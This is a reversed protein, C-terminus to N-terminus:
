FHYDNSLEYLMESNKLTTTVLKLMSKAWPLILITLLVATEKQWGDRIAVVKTKM